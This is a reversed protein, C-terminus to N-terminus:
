EKAAVLVPDTRYLDPFERKLAAIKPLDNYAIYPQDPHLTLYDQHYAEAPYFTKGPEIKTVVPAEFVHAKNLQDIYAAAVRAQEASLPFVASRYQTGTDPGQRNLETPDHAVSFYVQLLKGYTVVHPDFTVQVSEAHGSSGWSVTHYDATAKEGGAYGSVASTVGKVHQFVGQVGWFCGGAFVATESASSPPEDTAPAPVVHATEAAPHGTPIMFAAVPVAMAAAFAFSRWHSLIPM